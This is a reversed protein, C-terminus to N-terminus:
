PGLVTAHAVTSVFCDAAQVDEHKHIKVCSQGKQFPLLILLLAASANAGHQRHLCAKLCYKGARRRMKLKLFYLLGFVSLRTPTAM